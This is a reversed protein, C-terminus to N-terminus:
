EGKELMSRYLPIMDDSLILFEPKDKRLSIRGGGFVEWKDNVIEPKGWDAILLKRVRAEEPKGTLVWLVQLKGDGFVAEFKRDFGAFSYGFCNIQIQEKPKNPLWVRNIKDEKTQMCEHEFKPRLKELDSDFDLLGPIKTSYNTKNKFTTNLHPNAWAFLNPHGADKHLWLLRGHANDVWLEGKAYIDMGLYNGTKDGLKNRIRALSVSKAEMQTFKNDAIVFAARGFTVKEKRYGDCILHQEKKEALPYTPQKIDIVKTTRCYSLLKQKITALDDELQLNDGIVFQASASHNFLMALVIILKTNM